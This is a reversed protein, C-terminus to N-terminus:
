RGNSVRRGHDREDESQRRARQEREYLKKIAARVFVFVFRAVYVRMFVCILRDSPTNELKAYQTAVKIRWGALDQRSIDLSLELANLEKKYADREEEVLKLADMQVYQMHIFLFSAADIINYACRFVFM